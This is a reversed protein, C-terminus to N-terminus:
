AGHHRRKFVVRGEFAKSIPGWIGGFVVGGILAVILPADYFFRHIVMVVGIAPLVAILILVPPAGYRVVAECGACARVGKPAELACHPCVVYLLSM